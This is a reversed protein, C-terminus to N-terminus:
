DELITRKVRQSIATLIEYATAQASAAFTAASNCVGFVVVEDGEQCDIGTVDIILTDM